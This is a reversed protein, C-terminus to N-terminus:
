YLLEISEQGTPNRNPDLLYLMSRVAQGRHSILNKLEPTLEAATVGRSPLYFLPDYGFGGAGSPATAIEGEWTGEAIRPMADNAHRLLVMVCRFRATRTKVEPQSLLSLLKINNEEDSAQEGAFRASYISPRGGLADVELGSDDAIAPLGSHQAANRAKILANEVFTLGNEEVDPVDFEQQSLLTIGLPQFLEFLEKLKAQNNSALVVKTLSSM